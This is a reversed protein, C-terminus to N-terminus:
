TSPFLAEIERHAARTYGALAAEGDELGQRELNPHGLNPREVGSGDLTPRAGGQLGEFHRDYTERM